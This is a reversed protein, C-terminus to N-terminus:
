MEIEFHYSICRSAFEAYKSYYVGICRLNIIIFIINNNNNNHYCLIIMVNRKPADLLM